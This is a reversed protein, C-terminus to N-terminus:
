MGRSAESIARACPPLISQPEGEVNGPGSICLGARLRSLRSPSADSLKAGGLREFTWLRVPYSWVDARNFRLPTPSHGANARKLRELRRRSDSTYCVATESAEIPRLARMCPDGPSRRSHPGFGDDLQTRPTPKM